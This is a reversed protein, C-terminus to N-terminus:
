FKRIIILFKYVKVTKLLQYLDEVEDGADITSGYELEITKPKGHIPRRYLPKEM